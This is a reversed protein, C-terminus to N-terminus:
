DFECPPPNCGPCSVCTVSVARCGSRSYSGDSRSSFVQVHWIGSQCSLQKTVFHNTGNPTAFTNIGGTGCSTNPPYLVLLDSNTGNTGLTTDWGVDFRITGPNGCWITVDIDLSSEPIGWVQAFKAMSPHGATGANNMLFIMYYGPPADNLTAPATVTYDGGAQHVFPLALSRQEFDYAHTTASPRICRVGTIATAGAGPSSLTITFVSGTGVTVPMSQVQPRDSSTIETNDSRFLYPPKYFDASLCPVVRTQAPIGIGAPQPCGLPSVGDVAVQGGAVLVRGDPLLLATSHYMRPIGTLSGGNDPDRHRMWAVKCMEGQSTTPDVPPTFIETRYTAHDLIMNGTEPETGGGVILVRGDPLAVLNQEIRVVGMPAATTASTVGSADAAVIETADIVIGGTPTPGGTKLVRGKDYFLPTGGRITAAVGTTQWAPSAVDLDLTQMKNTGSQVTRGSNLVRTTPGPLVHIFPYYIAM